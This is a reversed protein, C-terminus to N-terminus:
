TDIRAFLIVALVYAAALGIAVKPFVSATALLPLLLFVTALIWPV